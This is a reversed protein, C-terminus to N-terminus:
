FELTGSVNYGFPALVDTKRKFNRNHLDRLDCEIRNRRNEENELIQYFDRAYANRPVLELDRVLAIMEKVQAFM